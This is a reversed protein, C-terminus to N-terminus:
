ITIPLKLEFITSFEENGGRYYVEGEAKQALYKIHMLGTGRKINPTTKTTFGLEFLRKHHYKAIGEGTDAVSISVYNATQSAIILHVKKKETNEVADYANILLNDIMQYAYHWEVNLKTAKDINQYIIAFEFKKTKIKHLLHIANILSEISFNIEGKQKEFTNFDEIATWLNDIGLRLHKKNEETIIDGIEINNIMGDIIVSANKLSHHAYANTEQLYKELLLVEIKMTNLTDFATFVKHASTELVSNFETVNDMGVNVRELKVEYEKQINKVDEINNKTKNIINGLIINKELLQIGLIIIPVLFILFFLCHWIGWYPM